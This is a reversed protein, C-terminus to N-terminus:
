SHKEGREIFDEILRVAETVGVEARIKEGLAAAKERMAQSKMQVLADAMVQPKLKARPIPQAGM